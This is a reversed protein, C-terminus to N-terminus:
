NAGFTHFATRLNPTPNNHANLIRVWCPLALQSAHARAITQPKDFGVWVGCCVDKTSGIFWADKSSDTTGTKGLAEVSLGLSQASRATGSKLVACLDSATQEAAERDICIQPESASTWFYLPRSTSRSAITQIIHPSQCRAGENSFVTYAAVLAVPSVIFSGLFSSPYPPVASSPAIGLLELRQTFRDIGIKAGLRLTLLNESKILGDRLPLWGSETGSANSPSYQPDGFGLEGYALPGNNMMQHPKMGAEYALEYLFPKITSGPPRMANTARNLESERRNRGGALALIGGTKNDIAVVLGQVFPYYILPTPPSTTRWELSWIPHRWDRRHELSRLHQDLETGCKADWAADLTLTIKLGGNAIIDKPLLRRLESAAEASAYTNKQAAQWEAYKLSLPTKALAEIKPSEVVNLKAMRPLVVKERRGLLELGGNRFPSYVDASRIMTILTASEILTLDKPIKGFFGESAAHIGHLGAGFDIRNLYAAIIEEKSLMNEVRESLHWEMLKRDIKELPKENKRAGWKSLKVLQMTISSGGHELKRAKIDHLAARAVGWWNVGAHSFFSEDEVAILGQVLHQPLDAYSICKRTTPGPLAKYFSGDKAYLENREPMNNMLAVIDEQEARHEYAVSLALLALM